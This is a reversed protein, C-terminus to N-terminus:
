PSTAGGPWLDDWACGASADGGDAEELYRKIQFGELVRRTEELLDTTADPTADTKAGSVAPPIADLSTGQPPSAPFTDPAPDPDVAPPSGPPSRGQPTACSVTAHPPSGPPSSGLPPTRPPTADPPSGPPSSQTPLIRSLLAFINPPSGPPTAPACAAEATKRRQVLEDLAAVMRPISSARPPSTSGAEATVDISQEEAVPCLGRPMAPVVPRRLEARPPGRVMDFGLDQFFAIQRRPPWLVLTGINTAAAWRVAATTATRELRPAHCLMQVADEGPVHAHLVVWGRVPLGSRVKLLANQGSEVLLIICVADLLAARCDIWTPDGVVGASRQQFTRKGRFAMMRRLAHFTPHTHDFVTETVTM